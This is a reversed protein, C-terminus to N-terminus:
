AIKVVLYKLIQKNFVSSAAKACLDTMMIVIYAATTLYQRIRFAAQVPVNGSGSHQRLRLRLRLGCVKM